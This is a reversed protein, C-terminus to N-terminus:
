KKVIEYGCEGLAKNWMELSLQGYVYLGPIESHNRMVVIMAAKRDPSGDEKLHIEIPDLKYAFREFRMDFHSTGHNIGRITEPDDQNMGSDLSTHGHGKIGCICVTRHVM